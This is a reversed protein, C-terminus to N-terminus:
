EDGAEDLNSDEIEARLDPPIPLRKAVLARYTDLKAQQQIITREHIERYYRRTADSM